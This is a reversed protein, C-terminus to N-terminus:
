VELNCYSMVKYHSYNETCEHQQLCREKEGERLTIERSWKEKQLHRLGQTRWLGLMLSGQQLPRPRRRQQTDSKLTDQSIGGRLLRRRSGEERGLAADLAKPCFIDPRNLSILDVEQTHTKHTRTHSAHSCICERLFHKELLAVELLGKVENLDTRSDDQLHASFSGPGAKSVSFFCILPLWM